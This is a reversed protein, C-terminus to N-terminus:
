REQDENNERADESEELNQIASLLQQSKQYARMEPQVVLGILVDRMGDVPMVSIEIVNGSLMDWSLGFQVLKSTVPISVSNSIGGTLLSVRLLVDDNTRFDNYLMGGTLTGNFPVLARYLVGDANPTNVQALFPVPPILGVVKNGLRRKFGNLIREIHALKEDVTNGRIVLKDRKV